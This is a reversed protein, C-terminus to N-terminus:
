KYSSGVYLYQGLSSFALGRSGYYTFLGAGAVGCQLPACEAVEVAGAGGCRRTACEAVEVGCQRGRYCHRRGGSVRVHPRVAIETTLAPNERGRVAGLGHETAPDTKAGECQGRVTNRPPTPDTTPSSIRM